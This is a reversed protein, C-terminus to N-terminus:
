PPPPELGRERVKERDDRTALISTAVMEQILAAGKEQTKRCARLLKREPSRITTIAMRRFERGRMAEEAATYIEVRAASKM